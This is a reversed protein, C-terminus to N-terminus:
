SLTVKQFHHAVVDVHRILLCIDKYRQRFLQVATCLKDSFYVLHNQDTQLAVCMM